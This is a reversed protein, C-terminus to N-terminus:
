FAALGADDADAPNGKWKERRDGPRQVRCCAYCNFGLSQASKLLPLALMMLMLQIEKGVREAIEQCKFGCCAYCNSGIVPRLKCFPLPLMMLMLQIDKGNKEGIKRGNCGM